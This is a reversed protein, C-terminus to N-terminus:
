SLIKIADFLLFGYFYACSLCLDVPFGAIPWWICLNRCHFEVNVLKLHRRASQMSNQENQKNTQKSFPVWESANLVNKERKDWIFQVYKKKRQRSLSHHSQTMWIANFWHFCFWYILPVNSLLTWNAFFCVCECLLGPLNKCKITIESTQVTWDIFKKHIM